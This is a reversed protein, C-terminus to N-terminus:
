KCFQGLFTYNTTSPLIGCMTMLFGEQLRGSPETMEVWFGVGTSRNDGDGGVVPPLVGSNSQALGPLLVENPAAALSTPLQPKVVQGLPSFFPYQGLLFFFCGDDQNSIYIFGM